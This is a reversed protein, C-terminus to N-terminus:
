CLLLSRREHYERRVPYVISAGLPRSTQERRDANTRRVSSNNIVINISWWGREIPIYTCMGTPMIGFPFTRDRMADAFVGFAAM